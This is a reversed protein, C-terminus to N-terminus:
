RVFIKNPSNLALTPLSSMKLEVIPYSLKCSIVLSLPTSYYIKGSEFVERDFTYHEWTMVNLFKNSM